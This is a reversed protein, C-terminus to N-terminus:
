RRTVLPFFRNRNIEPPRPVPRPPGWWPPGLHPGGLPSPPKLYINKKLRTATPPLFPSLLIPAGLHSPDVTPPPAWGPEHLAPSPPRRPPGSCIHCGASKERMVGCKTPSLPAFFGRKGPVPGFAWQPPWPFLFIQPSPPHVALVFTKSPPNPSAEPSEWTMAQCRGIAKWRRQATFFLPHWNEYQSGV